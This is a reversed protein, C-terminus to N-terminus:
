KCCIKDATVKYKQLKSPKTRKWNSVTLKESGDSNTILLVTLRSESLNGGSCTKGTFAFAEFPLLNFFLATEDAKFIDSPDYDTILTSFDTQRSDESKKLNFFHSKRRSTTYAM